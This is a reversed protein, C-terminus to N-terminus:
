NVRASSELCTVTVQEHEKAYLTEMRIGGLCHPCHFEFLDSFEEDVTDEEPPKEEMASDVTELVM